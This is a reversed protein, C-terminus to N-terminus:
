ASESVANSHEQSNCKQIFDIFVNSIEPDFQKGACDKIELLAEEMTHPRCYCRVSTMADYADCITLMRSIMPISEGKLGSPYGSGDYREHHHRVIEAIVVFEDMEQLIDAGKSPHRKIIEYEVETLHGTKNLIGESIGIKGVDHVIGALYAMTAENTSLKMYKSLGEILAAVNESHKMTCMDRDGIAKCFAKIININVANLKNEFVKFRDIMIYNGVAYEAVGNEDRLLFTSVLFWKSINSGPLKICVECANFEKGTDMTEILFGRYDDRIKNNGSYFLEVVSKNIVEQETVDWMECLAHNMFVANFECDIVLIGHLLGKQIVKAVRMFVDKKMQALSGKYCKGWSEWQVNCFTYQM